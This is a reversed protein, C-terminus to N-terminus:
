AITCLPATQDRGSITPFSLGQINEEERRFAELRDAASKESINGSAGEPEAVGSLSNPLDMGSMRQGSVM